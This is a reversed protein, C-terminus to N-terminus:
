AKEGEENQPSASSEEADRPLQSYFRFGAGELRKVDYMAKDAKRLLDDMDRGDTPYVSIGISAGIVHKQGNIVLPRTLADLIRRAVEAAHDPKGIEPLIVVFEDGGIRAVTDPERVCSLMRKAAEFLFRDGEDHGHLDNIRKFKDLDIYLLGVLDGYRQAHALDQHIRDKFLQRNPLETLPDHLAMHRIRDEALKISTVDQGNIVIDGGPMRAVHFRCWREEGNKHTFPFIYEDHSSSTAGGWLSLVKARQDQSCIAMEIWHPISELEPASYGFLREMGPSLFKFFGENSTVGIGDYSNELIAAIFAKEKKLAQEMRHRESVDTAFFLAIAETVLELNINWFRGFAAVERFDVHSGSHFRTIPSDDCEAQRLIDLFIPERIEESVVFGLHRANSNASIVTSSKRNILVAPHPLSNLFLDNLQKQKILEHNKLVHSADRAIADLLEGPHFPKLVYSSIGLRIAQRLIQVDELATTIIVPTDPRMERIASIMAVGDFKSTNIDTIVVDPDFRAFALLGEQGNRAPYLAKILPSIVERTFAAADPDDEIHLITVDKLQEYKTETSQM